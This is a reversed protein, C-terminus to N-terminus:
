RTFFQHKYNKAFIIWKLSTEIIQFSRFRYWIYDIYYLSYTDTCSKMDKLGQPRVKLPVLPAFLRLLHTFLLVDQPASVNTTTLINKTRTKFTHLGLVSRPVIRSLLVLFPARILIYRWLLVNSSLFVRKFM